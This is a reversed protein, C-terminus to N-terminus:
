LLRALPAFIFTPELIIQPKQFLYGKSVWESHVPFNIGIKLFNELERQFAAKLAFNVIGQKKRAPKMTHQILGPDFGRLDQYSWSNKKPFRDLLEVSKMVGKDSCQVNTKVNTSSEHTRINMSITEVVKRRLDEEKDNVDSSSSSSELPNLGEHIKHNGISIIEEPKPPEDQIVVCIREDNPLAKWSGGNELICPLYLSQFACNHRHSLLQQNPSATFVVLRDVM